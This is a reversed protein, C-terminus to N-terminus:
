SKPASKESFMWHNTVMWGYIDWHFKKWWFLIYSKDPPPIFSDLSALQVHHITHPRFSQM